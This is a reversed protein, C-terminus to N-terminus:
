GVGREKRHEFKSCANKRRGNFYRVSFMRCIGISSPLSRNDKKVIFHDCEICRFKKYFAPATNRIAKYKSCIYDGSVAGNIKCLIDNNVVMRIGIACNKCSKKIKM